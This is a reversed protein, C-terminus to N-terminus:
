SSSIMSCVTAAASFAKREKYPFAPSLESTRAVTAAQRLVTRYPEAKGVIASVAEPPQAELHGRPRAEFASVFCRFPM